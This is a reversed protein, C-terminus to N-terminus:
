RGSQSHHSDDGTILTDKENVECFFEVVGWHGLPMVQCYAGGGQFSFVGDM